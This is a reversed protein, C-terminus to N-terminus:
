AAIAVLKVEYVKLKAFISLRWEIMKESDLRNYPYLTGNWDYFHPRRKMLSDKEGILFWDSNEYQYVEFDDFNKAEEEAAEVTTFFYVYKENLKVLQATM